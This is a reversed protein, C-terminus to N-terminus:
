ISHQPRSRVTSLTQRIKLIKSQMKLNFEDKTGLSLISKQIAAADQGELCDHYDRGKEILATLESIVRARYRPQVVFYTDSKSHIGCGVVDRMYIEASCWCRDWPFHESVVQKGKIVTVKGDRYLPYPAVGIIALHIDSGTYVDKAETLAQDIAGDFQKNMIIDVWCLVDMDLGHDRAFQKLIDVIERLTTAQWMYTLVIKPFKPSFRPKHRDDELLWIKNDELYKKLHESTFQNVPATIGAEKMEKELDDVLAEFESLPISRLVRLLGPSGFFASM